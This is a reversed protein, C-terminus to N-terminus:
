LQEMFTSEIVMVSYEGGWFYMFLYIVINTM